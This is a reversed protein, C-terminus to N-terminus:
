PARPGVLSLVTPRTFLDRALDQVDEATVKEYWPNPYLSEMPDNGYLEDFLISTAITSKRQLDISTRGILYQRARQLEADSVKTEVLKVFEQRIMKEALAAKEPSCGIYAGFSGTGLGEMQIPSVSYALSKKDRLEIFLRGGQGALIAQMVQLAWKRPDKLGLGKMGVVLHSQEKELQNFLRIDAAPGSHPVEKLLSPGTPLSRAFDEIRRTWVDVDIDGVLACALNGQRMMQGFSSRLDGASIMPLSKESGFPDKAYPHTAFMSEYFARMCVSAPHDKRLFTQRLLLEREREFVDEPLTPSSLVDKLLEWMREDFSSLFDANMGITNRGAFTSFGAAMADIEANLAAEDFEAGGASWARALLENLGEKGDPEVALGGSLALRFSTTVTEPQRRLLLFGGGPLDVRRIPNETPTGRLGGQLRIPKAAKAMQMYRPTPRPFFSRKFKTISTRVAKPDGDTMATAILNEPKLYKRALRVLDAPKLSSLKKLYEKFALPDRLYFEMSGYARAVGDVTELSYITDSALGVIAKALEDTTPGETMFRSLVDATEALAVDVKTADLSMTISFLGDDLPTFASSGVSNVVANEIRLRHTLRSSDGQGLILGLADLGPVDSHRVSPVRWSFSVHTEKFPAKEVRIRATPRPEKARKVRRVSNDEFDGFHEDIKQRMEQREFDGAVLLFMNRPCYRDRFYNRLTKVSVNRIIREYGIVPRGYNHKKFATSFVLQSNRRGPSDNGRKIEEIVVERERDIEVPDFRPYGMMESIVKLATDAQGSAITVHFVTQDFSTYANLEGGSGEVTAAIEGVGFHRTGKFVLHEIFHSIGAESPREDASGTRVWMQVSVVPSKRSDALLVTLGNKMQYKAPKM